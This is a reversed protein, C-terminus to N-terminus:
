NVEEIIVFSVANEKAHSITVHVKYNEVPIRNCVKESLNIIPKGLENHTIEIDKM